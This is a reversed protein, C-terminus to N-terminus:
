WPLGGGTTPPPKKAERKKNIRFKRGCEKSCFSHTEGFTKKTVPLTESEKKCFECKKKGSGGKLFDFLGMNALLANDM